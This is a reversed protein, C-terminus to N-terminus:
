LRLVLNRPAAHPLIARAPLALLASAVAPLTSVGCVAPASTAAQTPAPATPREPCCDSAGLWTCGSEMGAPCCAMDQAGAAAASGAAVLGAALILLLVLSARKRGPLPM